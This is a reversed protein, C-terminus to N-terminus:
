EQVPMIQLNDIYFTQGANGELSFHIPTRVPIGDDGTTFEMTVEQWEGTMTVEQRGLEEWNGEEPLGVTFNATTGEAGWTWISYSYTTNPEVEIGDQRAEISWPDAGLELVTVALAREGEQVEDDVIEFTALQGDNGGFAWGTVSGETVAGVEADEFSGNENIAQGQDGGITFTETYVYGDPTRIIIPGTEAGEPITFILEDASSTEDIEAEMDGFFVQAGALNTGTITVIDGAVGTMEGADPDNTEVATVTPYAAPDDVAFGTFPESAGAATTVVIEINEGPEVGEPITVALTGDEQEEFEAEQGGVTVSTVGTLNEGSLNVTYGAIGREESIGTIAAQGGTQGEGITFPNTTVEFEEGEANTVRLTIPGTVAGEPITFILEDSSSTAEVEAQIEEDNAGTFFVEAVALNRGTITVVDGVEGTRDAPDIETIVPANAAFTLTVDEPGAIEEGEATTITFAGTYGETADEPVTFTVSNGDESVEFDDETLETDEGIRLGTIGTLNTGTLTVQSGPGVTMPSVSTITAEGGAGDPTFTFTIDEASTVAGAPTTVTITGTYDGEAADEPITFTINEGAEDVQFDEAAVQTEGIALATAGTFNTGTITVETGPGGSTPSVATITAEDVGPDPELVTFDASATGGATTVRIQTAGPTADTPVTASISTATNSSTSVTEGGITVSTANALNTGTITVPTGPLGENPSVSTITPELIDDEDDKCSVALIMLAPILLFLYNRFLKKM